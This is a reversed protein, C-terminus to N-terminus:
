GSQILVNFDSFCLVKEPHFVNKFHQPRMALSVMFLIFLCVISQSFINAFSAVSSPNIELIYM